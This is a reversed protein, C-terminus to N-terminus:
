IKKWYDEFGSRGRKSPSNVCFPLYLEKDFACDEALSIYKAKIKKKGKRLMKQQISDPWRENEKVEKLESSQLQWARLPLVTFLINHEITSLVHTCDHSVVKAYEKKKMLVSVTAKKFSHKRRREPHRIDTQWCWYLPSNVYCLAAGDLTDTNWSGLM